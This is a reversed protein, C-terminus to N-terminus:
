PNEANVQVADNKAKTTAAIEAREDAEKQMETLRKAKEENFADTIKVELDEDVKIKESLTLDLLQKACAPNEKACEKLKAVLAEDIASALSKHNEKADHVSGVPRGDVVVRTTDDVTVEVGRSISAVSLILAILYKM